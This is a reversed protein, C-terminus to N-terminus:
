EESRDLLEFPPNLDWTPLSINEELSNSSKEDNKIEMISIGSNTAGSNNIDNSIIGNSEQM